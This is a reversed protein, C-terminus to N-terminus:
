DSYVTESLTMVGDTDVQVDAVHVDSQTEPTSGRAMTRTVVCEPFLQSEDTSLTCTEKVLPKECLVHCMNVQGGAIDNGLLMHLGEIPIGVTVDGTVYKIESM